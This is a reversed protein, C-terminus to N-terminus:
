CLQSGWSAKQYSDRQKASVGMSTISNDDKKFYYSVHGGREMEGNSFILNVAQQTKQIRLNEENLARDREKQAAKDKAIKLKIEDPNEQADGKRNATNQQHEKKRAARAAKKAQQKSALGKKMLQDRLSM